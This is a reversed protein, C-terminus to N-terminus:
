SALPWPASCDRHRHVACGARRSHGYHEIAEEEGDEFDVGGKATLYSEGALNMAVFGVFGPPVRAGGKDERALGLPIAMAFLVPLFTFAVLGTFAMWTFSM